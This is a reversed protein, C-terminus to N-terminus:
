FAAFSPGAKITKSEVPRTSISLRQLIGCCKKKVNFTVLDRGGGTIEARAGTM